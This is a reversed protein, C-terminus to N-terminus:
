IHILSLVSPNPSTTVTTTTPWPGFEDAGIDPADGYVRLGGDVDRRDAAPVDTAADITPSGVAQHFDGGAADVFVPMATQNGGTGPPTIRDHDPDDTTGYNSSSAAIHGDDSTRVDAPGSSRAISGTLTLHLHFPASYLIAGGEGGIVTVHDLTSDDFAVVAANTASNGVVVSDRVTVQGALQLGVGTSRVALREFVSAGVAVNNVYVATARDTLATNVIELDALRQDLNSLFLLSGDVEGFLRPKAGNPPGLLSVEGDLQLSTTGLDYDGSAVHVTDGPRAVGVATAARRLQCATLPTRCEGTTMGGVAAYRDVPMHIAVTAEDDEPTTTSSANGPTSDPDSSDSSAVEVAVESDGPATRAVTLELLKFPGNAVVPDPLTWVGNAYAGDATTASEVMVNSPMTISVTVGSAENPGINQMHVRLVRSESAALALPHQSPLARVDLDAVSPPPDAHAVYPASAIAVPLAAAPLAIALVITFARM